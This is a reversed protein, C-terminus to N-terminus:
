GVEPLHGHTELLTSAEAEVDFLGGSPNQQRHVLDMGGREGAGGGRDLRGCFDPAFAIGELAMGGPLNICRARGSYFDLDANEDM